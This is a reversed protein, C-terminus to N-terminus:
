GQGLALLGARACAASWSFVDDIAARVLLALALGLIMVALYPHVLAVILAVAMGAHVARRDQERTAHPQLYLVILALVAWHACLTDHGIRALLAPSLAFFSGGLVRWRPADSGIAALRAGFWGQLAFCAALWLGIYQFDQPLLGSVLKFPLALLPNADTFGITTGLPWPFGDVRGLPLAWPTRRFFLWGMVHQWPDGHLWDLSTFPLARWGGIALFWAVGVASAAIEPWRRGIRTVWPRPPQAMDTVYWTRSRAGPARPAPRVRRSARLNRRTGVSRDRVSIRIPM